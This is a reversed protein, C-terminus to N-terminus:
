KVKSGFGGMKYPSGKPKCMKLASRNMQLVNGSGEEIQKDTENKKKIKQNTSDSGRLIKNRAEAENQEKQKNVNVTGPDATKPGGPSAKTPVEFNNTYTSLRPTKKQTVQERQVTAQNEDNMQKSAEKAIKGQGYRKAKAAEMQKKYDDSDEKIVKNKVARKLRREEQRGAKREQRAQIKELRGGAGYKRQEWTTFVDSKTGPTPDTVVPSMDHKIDLSGSKESQERSKRKTKQEATENKLYNKWESDSMKKGGSASAPQPSGTGTTSLQYEKGDKEVLVKGSAYSKTQRLPSASKVRTTIPINNM